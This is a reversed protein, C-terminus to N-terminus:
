FCLVCYKVLIFLFICIKKRRKIFRCLYPKKIISDAILILGVFELCSLKSQIIHIPLSIASCLFLYCRTALFSWHLFFPEAWSVVNTPSGLDWLTSMTVTAPIRGLSPALKKRNTSQRHRLWRRIVLKELTKKIKLLM